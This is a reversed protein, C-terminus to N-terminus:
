LSFLSRLVLRSNAWELSSSAFLVMKFSSLFILSSALSTLLIPLTLLRSRVISSQNFELHGELRIVKLELKELKRFVSKQDPPIHRLATTSLWNTIADKSALSEASSGAMM